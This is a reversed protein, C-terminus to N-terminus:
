IADLQEIVFKASAELDATVLNSAQTREAIRAAAPLGGNQHALQNLGNTYIHLAAQGTPVPTLRPASATPDYRVFLLHTLQVPTKHVPAPLARTPVQITWGLRLTGEPLIYPAPPDKKVCLAHPYPVVQMTELDVPILEDSLYAFGHHLLAWATTSKGSGSPAILGITKGHRHLVAGHIFFLDSRQKELAITLEKEFFYILDAEGDAVITEGDPTTLHFIGSANESLAFALDASHEHHRFEAYVSNLLFAGRESSCAVHIVREFVNFYLHTAATSDSLPSRGSKKSDIATDSM